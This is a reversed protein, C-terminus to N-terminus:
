LLLVDASKAVLVEGGRQYKKTKKNTKRRNQKKKWWRGCDLQKRGQQTIGLCSLDSYVNRCGNFRGHLGGCPCIQHLRCTRLGRSQIHKEGAAMTQTDRSSTVSQRRSAATLVRLHSSVASVRCLPSVRPTCSCVWRDALSRHGCVRRSGWAPLGPSVQPTQADCSGRGGNRASLIAKLKFVLSCRAEALSPFLVFCRGRCGCLEENGKLPVLIWGGCGAPIRLLLM